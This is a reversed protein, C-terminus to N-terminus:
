FNIQNMKRVFTPDILEMIDEVTLKDFLPPYTDRTLDKISEFISLSKIRLNIFQLEDLHTIEINQYTDIIKENKNDLFNLSESKNEIKETPSQLNLKTYDLM